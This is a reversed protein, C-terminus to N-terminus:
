INIISAHSFSTGSYDTTPSSTSSTARHGENELVIQIDGGEVTSSTTMFGEGLKPSSTVCQGEEGIITGHRYPKATLSTAKLGEVVSINDCIPSNAAMQNDSGKLTSSTATLGEGLKSLSTASQGEEGCITEHRYPMDGKHPTVKLPTAYPYGIQFPDKSMASQPRSATKIAIYEVAKSAYSAWHDPPSDGEDDDSSLVIINNSM